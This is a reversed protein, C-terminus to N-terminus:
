VHSFAMPGSTRNDHLASPPNGEFLVYEEDSHVPSRPPRPVVASVHPGRFTPCLAEPLRFEGIELSFTYMLSIHYGVTQTRPPTNVRDHCSHMGLHLCRRFHGLNACCRLEIPIPASAFYVKCQCATTTGTLIGNFRTAELQQFAVGDRRSLARLCSALVLFGVRSISINSQEM